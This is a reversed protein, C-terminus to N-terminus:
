LVMALMVAAQRFIEAFFSSPLSPAVIILTVTSLLLATM